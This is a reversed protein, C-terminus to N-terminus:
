GNLTNALLATTTAKRTDHSLSATLVICNYAIGAYNDPSVFLKGAYM